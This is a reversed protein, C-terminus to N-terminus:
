IQTEQHPPQNRFDPYHRRAAPQLSLIRDHSAALITAPPAPDSLAQAALELATGHDASFWVHGTTAGDSGTLPTGSPM